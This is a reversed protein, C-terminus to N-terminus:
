AQTRCRGCLPRNRPSRCLPSTPLACPYMEPASRLSSTPLPPTASVSRRGDPTASIPPSRSSTTLSPPKMARPVSTTTTRESPYRCMTRAPGWGGAALQDHVIGQIEADDQGEYDQRDNEEADEEAEDRDPEPDRREGGAHPHRERREESHPEPLHIRRVDDVRH